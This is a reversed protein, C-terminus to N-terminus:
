NQGGWALLHRESLRWFIAIGYAQFIFRSRIRQPKFKAEFNLTVSQFFEEITWRNRYLQAVEIM